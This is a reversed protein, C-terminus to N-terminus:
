LYKVVYFITNTAKVSIFNKYVTVGGSCRHGVVEALVCFNLLSAITKWRIYLICAFIRKPLCHLVRMYVCHGKVM